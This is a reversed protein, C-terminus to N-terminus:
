KVFLTTLSPANTGEKIIWGTVVTGAGSPGRVPVEVTYRAGFQDVTGVTATETRVGQLIQGALDDANKATIGLASSFVRAKNGGVAHSPNLAYETLKRMDITAMAANPLAGPNVPLRAGEAMAAIGIAERLGKGMDYRMRIDVSTGVRIAYEFAEQEKRDAYDRLAKDRFYGGFLEDIFDGKTGIKNRAEEAEKMAVGAAARNRNDSVEQSNFWDGFVHGSPDSMNIPDNGSYAYRNTGVGPQNPDYWDAQIFMASAQSTFAAFFITLFTKRWFQFM